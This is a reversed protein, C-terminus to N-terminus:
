NISAMLEFLRSKVQGQDHIKSQVKEFAKQVKREEVFDVDVRGEQFALTELKSQIRIMKERLLSFRSRIKEIGEAKDNEYRDQVVSLEKTM